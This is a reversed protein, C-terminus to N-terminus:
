RKMQMVSPLNFATAVEVTPTFFWMEAPVQTDYISSALYNAVTTKFIAYPDGSKEFFMKGVTVPIRFQGIGALTPHDSADADLPGTHLEGLILKDTTDTM